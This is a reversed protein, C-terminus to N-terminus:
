IYQRYIVNLCYLLQYLIIKIIVDIINIFIEGM